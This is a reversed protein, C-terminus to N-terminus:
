HTGWIGDIPIGSLNSKVTPHCQYGHRDIILERLGLSNCWEGISDTTIDENMNGMVILQDGELKWKKVDLALDKLFAQRPCTSRNRKNFYTLHQAYAEKTGGPPSSAQLLHSSKIQSRM